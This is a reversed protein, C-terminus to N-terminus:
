RTGQFIGIVLGTTAPSQGMGFGGGVAKGTPGLVVGRLDKTSSSGLTAGDIKWQGNANGIFTSSSGSATATAGSISASHGGGSISMNINNLSRSAFNVNASFSGAMNAGGTNTWYTGNATGSYTGSVNHAILDNMQANTTPDGRLYFGRNNVYYNTGGAQMASNQLWYGWSMYSNNGLEHMDISVPIGVTVAGTSTELATIQPPSSIGNVTMVRSSNYSPVRTGSAAFYTPGLTSYVDELTGSKTLMCSMHGWYNGQSTFPPNEDVAKTTQTPAVCANESSEKIGLSITPAQAIPIGFTMNWVDSTMDKLKALLGQSNLNAQPPSTATNTKMASQINNQLKAESQKDGSLMFAAYTNLENDSPTRGVKEKFVNIVYKAAQNKKDEFVTVKEQVFQVGTQTGTFKGEQEQTTGNNYTIQRERITGGKVIEKTEDNYVAEGRANSDVITLVYEGTEKREVGTVLAVHGVGNASNPMILAAGVRPIADVAFGNNKLLDIMNKPNKFAVSEGLQKLDERSAKVFDVCQGVGIKNEKGVEVPISYSITFNVNTNLPPSTQALALGSGTYLIIIMLIVTFTTCTISRDKNM